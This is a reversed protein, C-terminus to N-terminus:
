EAILATLERELLEASGLNLEVIRRLHTASDLDISRCILGLHRGALHGVSVEMRIEDGERDLPIILTGHLAPSVPAPMGADPLRLLAGRFSLDLIEAPIASGAFLLRAPARFTIRTLHRRENSM